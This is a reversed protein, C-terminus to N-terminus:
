GSQCFKLMKPFIDQANLLYKGFNQVWKLCQAFKWIQWIALMSFFIKADPEEKYGKVKLLDLSQTM